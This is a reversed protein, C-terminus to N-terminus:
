VCICVRACVHVYVFVNMHVHQMRKEWWVGNRAHAFCAHTYTCSFQLTTVKSTHLSPHQSWVVSTRCSATPEAGCREMDVKYSPPMPSWRLVHVLSRARPWRQLFAAEHTCTRTYTHLLTHTHTHLYIHLHATHLHTHPHLHTHAHLPIHTQTHPHTHTLTRIHTDMPMRLICACTHIRPMHNNCPSVQNNGHVGFGQSVFIHMLHVNKQAHMDLDMTKWDGFVM